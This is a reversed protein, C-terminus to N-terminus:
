DRFHTDSNKRSSFADYMIIRKKDVIRTANNLYFVGFRSFCVLCELYVLKAWYTLKAWYAFWALYQCGNLCVFGGSAFAPRGKLAKFSPARM